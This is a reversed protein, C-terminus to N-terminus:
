NNVWSKERLIEGIGKNGQISLIPMDKLLPHLGYGWHVVKYSLCNQCNGSM